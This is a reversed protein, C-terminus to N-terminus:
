KKWKSILQRFQRWKQVRNAERVPVFEKHIAQLENYDLFQVVLRNVGSKLEMSVGSDIVKEEVLKNSFVTRLDPYPVENLSASDFFLQLVPVYEQYLEDASLDVDLYYRIYYKMADLGHNLQQSLDLILYNMMVKKQDNRWPFFALSNLEGYNDQIVLENGEESAQSEGFLHMKTLFYHAKKKDIPQLQMNKYQITQVGLPSYILEIFPDRMVGVGNNWNFQDCGIQERFMLQFALNAPHRWRFPDEYLCIEVVTQASNLTAKEVQQVDRFVYAPILQFHVSSYWMKWCSTFFLRDVILNFGALQSCDIEKEGEENLMKPFTQDDSVTIKEQREQLDSINHYLFEQYDRLFAHYAGRKEMQMRIFDEVIAQKQEFVSEAIIARLFIMENGIDIWSELQDSVLGYAISFSQDPTQFAEDVASLWEAQKNEEIPIVEGDYVCYDPEELIRILFIWDEVFRLCEQKKQPVPVLQEMYIQRKKQM